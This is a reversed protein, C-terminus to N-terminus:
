PRGKRAEADLLLHPALGVLARRPDKGPDVQAPAVVLEAADDASVDRAVLVVLQHHEAVRGVQEVIRFGGEVQVRLAVAAVDGLVLEPAGVRPGPVALAAQQAIAPLALVGLPGRQAGVRGQRERDDVPQQARDVRAPGGVARRAGLPRPVELHGRRILVVGGGETQPHARAESAFPAARRESASSNSSGSAAGAPDARAARALPDLSAEDASEDRAPASVSESGSTSPFGTMSARFAAPGPRTTSGEPMATSAK